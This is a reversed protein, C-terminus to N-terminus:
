STNVNMAVALTEEDLAQKFNLNAQQYNDRVSTGFEICQSYIRKNNIFDWGDGLRAGSEYPYQITRRSLPSPVVADGATKPRVENPDIPGMARTAEWAIASTSFGVLSILLLSGPIGSHTM